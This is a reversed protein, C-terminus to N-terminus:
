LNHSMSQLPPLLAQFPQLNRRSFHHLRPRTLRHSFPPPHQSFSAALPPTHPEALSPTLPKSLDKSLFRSDNCSHNRSAFHSAALPWSPHHLLSRSLGQALPWSFHNFLSCFGLSLFTPDSRPTALPRQSLGQFGSSIERSTQIPRAFYPILSAALLATPPRL